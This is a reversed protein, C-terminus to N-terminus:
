YEKRDFDLKCDCNLSPLSLGNAGRQCASSWRPSALRPQLPLVAVASESYHTLLTLQRAGARLLDRPSLRPQLCVRRLTLQLCVRMLCTVDATQADKKTGRPCSEACAQSQLITLRPAVQGHAGHSRIARSRRHAYRILGALSERWTLARTAGM